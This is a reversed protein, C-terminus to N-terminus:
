EVVVEYLMRAGEAGRVNLPVVLAGGEVKAEVKALRRGGTSLAWVQARTADAMTISAVASGTRVLHPLGGWALLTQRAREAFRAGRNQLDTLHTIVLRKSTAIPEDDVSSVWVTADTKLIRVTLAQTEISLGQPAYGGATRPTDLIMVDRPADITLQKTESQSVRLALDTANGALWGKRKMADLVAGGAGAGYPDVDLVEGGSWESRKTSWAIPLVIDAPVAGPRKAVFTGVRAVLALANWDPAINVSKRRAKLLEDETMAIAITHDTSKMDGRLYLCVSAREAALNLPDSGMDFYGANGPEFLNARTHSYAFRWIVGWDQTAGLAGTLIGGVGRFRGPGSYNYESITFPKDIMRVFANGRGGPAGDAIPSTNPCRSPLQWANELFQPHDIYFHDDVYDYPVRAAQGSIRNAWGNKNTLLAKTGVEERLFRQMKLFMDREVEALFAMVDRERKGDAWVNARIPVSGQAPDGEPDADWASRVGERTKYTRRLWENWKKQWDAAVPPSTGTIFNGPNGENIMSLWGLAPDAAWTMGTHPNLHTLLRKAFAKWNEWARENVPVAMKFDDMGMHGEAGPYIESAFVPRSVFLDTTIYIGQKKLAAFLYDLQDLKTPNMTLSDTATTGTWREYSLSGTAGSPFPSLCAGPVIQRAVGPGSWEVSLHDGGTDETLTAELYYTKGAELRIPKSTQSPDKDFQGAGAWGHLYAVRTKGAPDRDASIFLEGDNDSAIRFTYEGTAPPHV